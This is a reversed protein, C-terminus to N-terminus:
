RLRCIVCHWLCKLHKCCAAVIIVSHIRMFDVVIIVIYIRVRM